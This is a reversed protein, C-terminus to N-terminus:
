VRMRQWSPDHRDIAQTAWQGLEAMLEPLDEAAPAIYVSGVQVTTNRYDSRERPRGAAGGRMIIAHLRRM